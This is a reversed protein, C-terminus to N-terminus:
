LLRNSAPEELYLAFTRVQEADTLDLTAEWCTNQLLQWGYNQGQHTFQALVEMPFPSAPYRSYFAAVTADLMRCAAEPIDRSRAYAAITRVQTEQTALFGARAWAYGGILDGALCSIRAIGAAQYQRYLARLVPRAGKGQQQLHIPISIFEHWVTRDDRLLIELQLLYAGAADAFGTLRLANPEVETELSEWPHGIAVGFALLEELLDPLHFRPLYTELWAAVAAPTPVFSVQRAADFASFHAPLTM